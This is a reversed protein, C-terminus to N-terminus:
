ANASAANPIVKLNPRRLTRRRKITKRPSSTKAPVPRNCTAAVLLLVALTDPLAAVIFIVQHAVVDTGLGTAASVFGIAAFEAGANIADGEVKATATNAASLKALVADREATSANLVAQAARVRGKDDRARVVATRAQAVAQEVQALQRELLSAEAHATSEATHSTARAGIQQREYAASLFGSVGVINLTMLVLGVVLLAGKLARPMRKHLMAFSTLKGAEFLVGMAAIVLEAGPAFKTLGYTAVAGSFGALGIAVTSAIINTPSTKTTM